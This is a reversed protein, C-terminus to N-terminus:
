QLSWWVFSLRSARDCIELEWNESKQPRHYACHAILMSCVNCSSFYKLELKHGICYCTNIGLIRTFRTQEDQAMKSNCCDYLFSVAHLFKTWPQLIHCTMYKKKSLDICIWLKTTLALQLSDPKVPKIVELHQLARCHRLWKAHCQALWHVSMMLSMYATAWHIHNTDCNRARQEVHLFTRCFKIGRAM